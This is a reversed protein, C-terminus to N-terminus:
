QLFRETFQPDSCRCARKGLIDYRREAVMDYVGNRADLPVLNTLASCTLQAPLSLQRMVQLVCDSKEFYSDPTILLVSTIDDEDKGIDLLLSRGVDSQLAAFKYRKNVDIRLLIDVWTNCFNCVGDYLIVNPSNKRIEVIDSRSPATSGIADIQSMRRTKYGKFARVCSFLLFVVLFHRMVGVTTHSM